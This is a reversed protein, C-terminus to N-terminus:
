WQNNDYDNRLKKMLKNLRQQSQKLKDTDELPHATNIQKKVENLHKQAQKYYREISAESLDAKSAKRELEDVTTFIDKKKTQRTNKTLEKNVDSSMPNEYVPIHVGNRTVWRVIKRDEAM